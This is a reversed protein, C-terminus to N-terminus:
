VRVVWVWSELLFSEKAIGACVFSLYRTFDFPFYLTLLCDSILMFNLEILISVIFGYDFKKFVKRGRVRLEGEFKEGKKDCFVFPM